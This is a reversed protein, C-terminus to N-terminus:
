RVVLLVPTGIMAFESDDSDCGSTVQIGEDSSIIPGAVTPQRHDQSRYVGRRVSSNAPVQSPRSSSSTSQSSLPLDPRPFQDRCLEIDRIDIHPRHSPKMPLIRARVNQNLTRSPIPAFEGPSEMEPEGSESEASDSSARTATPSTLGDRRMEAGGSASGGFIDCILKYVLKTGPATLELAEIEETTSDDLDSLLKLSTLPTPCANFVVNIARPQNPRQRFPLVGFEPNCAPASANMTM